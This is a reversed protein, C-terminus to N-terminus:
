MPPISRVIHKTRLYTYKSPIVGIIARAEIITQKVIRDRDMCRPTWELSDEDVIVDLVYFHM